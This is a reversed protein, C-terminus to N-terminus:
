QWGELSFQDINNENILTVPIRAKSSYPKNELIKYVIEAADKGMTKPSQSVSATMIHDKILAKTEPSGDVGYVLVSQLRDKDQMAALAGLASPDNLAMVVDFSIDKNLFADMKPMAIECEIREVVRYQPKDKITDVFGQIRQVASYATSHQLLVIDASKKRKMMDKACQVGADYNDSMLSYAVLDEDFVDTDVTIIILASVGQEILYHIQEKQKQLDLAPDLSILVDGNAEVVNRVEDDIVNFFPNNLTMYTAGIKLPKKSRYIFQESTYRSLLSLGAVVFMLAFLFMVISRISVKLKSM